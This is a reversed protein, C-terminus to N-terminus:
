NRPHLEPVRTNIECHATLPAKKSVWTIVVNRMVGRWVTQDSLFTTHGLYPTTTAKMRNKTAVCDGSINIM